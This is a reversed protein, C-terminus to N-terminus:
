LDYIIQTQWQGNKETIALKHFTVAKIIRKILHKEPTYKEGWVTAELGNPNLNKIDFRSFLLEQTEFLFLFENLWSVLLEELNPAELSFKHAENGQIQDVETLVSFFSRAAHQFLEPLSQGSIIVGVDATHDIFRIHENM